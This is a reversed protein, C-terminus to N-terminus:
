GQLQLMLTFQSHFTRISGDVHATQRYHQPANEFRISIKIYKDAQCFNRIFGDDFFRGCHFLFVMLMAFVRLWDIAFDREPKAITM